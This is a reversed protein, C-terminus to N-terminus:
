AASNGGRGMIRIPMLGNQGGLPYGDLRFSNPRLPLRGSFCSLCTLLLRAVMAM